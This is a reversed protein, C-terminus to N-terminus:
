RGRTDKGKAMDVEHWLPIHRFGALWALLKSLLPQLHEVECGNEKV